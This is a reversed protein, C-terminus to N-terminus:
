IDIRILGRAIVKAIAENRNLVDLKAIANHFHFNVTREAIGIKAGIDGSTLGHAAMQLCQIERSSLPAGRLGSASEVATADAMFLDHFRTALLMVQGLRRAIRTERVADVPSVTSNFAVVVRAHQADTFSVAVGSRIGFRAADRAFCQVRPDPPLRAADWLTPAARGRTHTIRPDIEVYANRAYVDHWEAPETAWFLSHSHRRPADEPFRGYRFSDFGLARVLARMAPELPAGRAAANILPALDASVLAAAPAPRVPSLQALM